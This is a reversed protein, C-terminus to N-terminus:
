QCKSDIYYVDITESNLNYEGLGSITYLKESLNSYIDKFDGLVMIKDPQAINIIKKLKPLYEELKNKKDAVCVASKLIFKLKMLKLTEKANKNFENIKDFLKNCEKIDEFFFLLGGELQQYTVKFNQMLEEKLKAIYEAKKAEVDAVKEDFAYQAFIKEIDVTCFMAFYNFSFSIKSANKELKKNFSREFRKQGDKHVNDLIHEFEIIFNLIYVILGAFIMMEIAAVVLTFDVPIVTLNPQYILSQIKYITDFVVQVYQPLKIGMLSLIFDVMTLLALAILVFQM